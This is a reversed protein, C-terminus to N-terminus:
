STAKLLEKLAAKMSEVTRDDIHVASGWSGLLLRTKLGQSKHKELGSLKEEHEKKSLSSFRRKWLEKEKRIWGDDWNKQAQKLKEFTFPEDRNRRFLLL